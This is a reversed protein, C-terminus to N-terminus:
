DHSSIQVPNPSSFSTHSVVSGDNLPSRMREANPACSHNLRSSARFVAAYGPNGDATSEAVGNLILVERIHESLTSMCDGIGGKVVENLSFGGCLTMLDLQDREGEEPDEADFKINNYAGILKLRPITYDMTTSFTGNIAIHTAVVWLAKEQIILTGAEIDKTAFVGHGHFASFGFTCNDMFPKQFKWAPSEDPYAIPLSSGLPAQKHKPITRPTSDTAQVQVNSSPQRKTSTQDRKSPSGAM